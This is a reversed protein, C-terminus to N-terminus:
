TRKTQNPFRQSVSSAPEPNILSGEEHELFWFLQLSGAPERTKFGFLRLLMNSGTLGESNEALALSSPALEASDGPNSDKM